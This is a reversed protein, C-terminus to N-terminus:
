IAKKRFARFPHGEETLSWNFFEICNLRLGHVVGGMIGLVINVGHGLILVLLALLMGVGPIQQMSNAMDNFTVALQASAFGLAFLRLYSLIDGFAQSVKTLGLLGDVIRMVWDLPTGGVLPRSSSFLFVLSMGIAVAAQGVAAFQPQFSAPAPGWVAALWISAKNTEESFLGWFYGGLIGLVWGIAVWSTNSGRQQWATVVNALALHVAGIGLSLMMMADKHNVFPQGEVKLQMWELSAPTAGFYSGALVGYGITALIMTAMLNRLSRSEQSGSLYRWGVLLGGLFILGYAADSVIMAFFITFSLFMIWTPDWSRYPPTIYFTVAGEAGAVLTPNKLLTPPLEDPQPDQVLLALRNQKAYDQIASVALKPAWGQLVFLQQDALTWGTASLRSLLDDTENLDRRMLKLWRTFEAREWQVKELEEGVAAFEKQVDSLSRRPLSLSPWPVKPQDTSLIVVYAQAAETRILQSPLDIKKLTALERESIQYFWLRVGNTESLDPWRFEGWPTLAEIDDGLKDHRDSLEDRRKQNALALQAAGLCDLGETYQNRQNSNQVPSAELYRIAEAVLNREAHELPKAADQGSLNVLHLCGLQQLGNVVRDRDALTGYFTVKQLPVIAM